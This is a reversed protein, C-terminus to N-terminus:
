FEEQERYCNIAIFVYRAKYQDSFHELKLMASCLFKISTLHRIFSMIIKMCHWLVRRNGDGIINTNNTKLVSTV